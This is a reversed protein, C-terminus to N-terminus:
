LLVGLLVALLVALLVGMLVGLVEVSFPAGSENGLVIVVDGVASRWSDRLLSESPM